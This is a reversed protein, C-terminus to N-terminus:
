EEKLMIEPTNLKLIVTVNDESLYIMPTSLKEPESKDDDTNLYIMPTDLKDFLEIDGGSCGLIARGLIAKGLISTTDSSITELKAEIKEITQFLCAVDKILKAIEELLPVLDSLRTGDPMEVDVADVLAFKGGNKPKIKDILEISM